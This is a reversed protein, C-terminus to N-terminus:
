KRDVVMTDFKHWYVTDAIIVGKLPLKKAYGNYNSEWIFLKNQQKEYHGYFQTEGLMDYETLRFRNNSKFEFQLVNRAGPLNSVQLITKSHDIVQYQILKFFVIGCFIVGIITTIFQYLKKEPEYYYRDIRFAGYTFLILLSLIIYRMASFLGQELGIFVQQVATIGLLIIIIGIVIRFVKMCPTYHSRFICFPNSLHYIIVKM